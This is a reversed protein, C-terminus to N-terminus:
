NFKEANISNKQMLQIKKCKGSNQNSNFTCLNFKAANKKHIKAPYVASVISISSSDIRFKKFKEANKHNKQILQTNKYISTGLIRHIL